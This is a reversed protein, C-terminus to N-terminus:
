DIRLIKRMNKKKRVVIKTPIQATSITPANEILKMKKEIEKESITKRDYLKEEKILFLAAAYSQTLDKGAPLREIVRKIKLVLLEFKGFTKKQELTRNRKQILIKGNEDIVGSKFSDWDKFPKSILRIFNFVFILNIM